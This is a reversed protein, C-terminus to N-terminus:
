VGLLSSDLDPHAHIVSISAEGVNAEGKGTRTQRDKKKIIYKM